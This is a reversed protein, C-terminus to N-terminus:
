LAAFTVGKYYRKLAKKTQDISKRYEIMRAGYGANTASSTSSISQSLGDISLSQSAIGAGLILDGAIALLPLASLMGIMQLLDEPIEGVDFGTEYQTTWYNAVQSFARLGYHSTIGTLIVDANGEVAAGSPVISFQRHYTGDSTKRESLWSEPYIIQEVNNLRGVLSLIRKVPLSTRVFPFGNYYDDRYYDKTEEIFTPFLKIDLYKEVESQASKINLKITNSDLKSGDKSLVDVGYFYLTYIEESSFCVGENKRYKTTFTLQPM